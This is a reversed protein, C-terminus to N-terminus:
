RFHTHKTKWKKLDIEDTMNFNFSDLEGKRFAESCAHIASGVSLARPKQKPYWKEKYRLFHQYPCTIYSNVKSFSKLRPM